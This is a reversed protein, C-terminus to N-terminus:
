SSDMPSPQHAWVLGLDEPRHLARGWRFSFSFSFSVLVLGYVVSLLEKRTICYRRKATTLTRSAYGIVCLQGDQEQQLVAGLAQDSTDTDLVYRGEDRPPVLIPASTLREKLAQFATECEQNWV